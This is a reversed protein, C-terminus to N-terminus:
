VKIHGILSNVSYEKLQIVKDNPPNKSFKDNLFIIKKGQFHKEFLCYELWSNVVLINCTSITNRVTYFDKPMYKNNYDDVSNEDGVFYMTPVSRSSRLTSFDNGMTKLASPLIAVNYAYVERKKSLTINKFVNEDSEYTYKKFMAKKQNSLSLNHMVFPELLRSANSFRTNYWKGRERGYWANIYAVDNNDYVVDEHCSRRYRQLYPTIPKVELNKYAGSIVHDEHLHLVQKKGTLKGVAGTSIIAWLIADAERSACFFNAM